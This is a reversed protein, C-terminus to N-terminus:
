HISDFKFMHIVAETFKTFTASSSVVLFLAFIVQAGSVRAFCVCFSATAILFMFSCFEPETAKSLTLGPLSTPGNKYSAAAQSLPLPMACM